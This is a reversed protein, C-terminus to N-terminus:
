IKGKKKLVDYQKKALGGYSYYLIALYILSVFISIGAIIAVNAQAALSSLEALGQGGGLVLVAIFLLFIPVLWSVAFSSWVMKSKEKKSPIRKNDRIFKGVSYVASGALVGISAGSGLDLDFIYSILFLAILGITYTIGFKIIYKTLDVSQEM